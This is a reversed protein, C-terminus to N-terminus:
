DSGQCTLEASNTVGGRFIVGFGLTREPDQTVHEHASIVCAVRARSCMGLELSHVVRLWSNQLRLRLRIRFNIRFM